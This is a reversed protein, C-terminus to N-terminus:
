LEEDVKIQWDIMSDVTMFTTMFEKACRDCLASVGYKFKKDIRIRVSVFNKPTPYKCVFCPVPVTGQKMDSPIIGMRKEEFLDPYMHEVWKQQDARTRAETATTSM